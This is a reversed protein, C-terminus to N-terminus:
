GYTNIGDEGRGLSNVSAEDENEEFDQSSSKDEEHGNATHLYPCSAKQCGGPRSLYKCPVRARSDLPVQHSSEGLSITDNPHIAAASNINLREIAPFTSAVTGSPQISPVSTTNREHVFDCSDENRCFGQAFFRCPIMKSTTMSYLQFISSGILAERVVRQVLTAASIKDSGDDACVHYLIIPM